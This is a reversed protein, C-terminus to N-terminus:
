QTIEKAVVVVRSNGDRTDCTVLTMLKDSTSISEGTEYVADEKVSRLFSAYSDQNHWSSKTFELSDSLNNLDVNLVSVIQYIRVEDTLIFNFTPHALYFNKELYNMLPTFIINSTTSSHGYVVINTSKINGDYSIFPIGASAYNLDINRRVYYDNDSAQVIPEYIMREDFEIIGVVDKNRKKLLDLSLVQIPEDPEKNADTTTTTKENEVPVYFDSYDYAKKEQNIFAYIGLGMLLMATLSILAVRKKYKM